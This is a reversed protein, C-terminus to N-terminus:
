VLRTFPNNDVSAEGRLKKKCYFYAGCCLAIAAVGGVVGGIVKGWEALRGISSMCTQSNAAFLNQYNPCVGAPMNRVQSTLQWNQWHSSEAACVAEPATANVANMTANAVTEGSVNAYSDIVTQGTKQVDMCKRLTERADWPADGSGVQQVIRNFQPMNINWPATGDTLYGQACGLLIGKCLDLGGAPVGEHVVYSSAATAITSAAAAPAAAAAAIALPLLAANELSGLHPLFSKTPKKAEEQSQKEMMEVLVQSHKLIEEGHTKCTEEINRIIEEREKAPLEKPLRSKMDEIFEKLMTSTESEKSKSEAMSFLSTRVLETGGTTWTQGTRRNRLM